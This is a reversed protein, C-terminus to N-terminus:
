YILVVVCIGLVGERSAKWRKRSFRGGMKPGMSAENSM